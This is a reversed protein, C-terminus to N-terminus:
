ENESLSEEVLTNYTENYENGYEGNTYDEDSNVFSDDNEETNDNDYGIGQDGNTVYCHIDDEDKEITIYEDKENLLEVDNSEHFVNELVDKDTSIVNYVPTYEAYKDYYSEDLAFENHIGNPLSAMSPIYDTNFSSPEMEQTEFNYQYPAPITTSIMYHNSDELAEEFDSLKYEICADGRGSDILTVRIDSPDKPNVTVGAVILAHNAGQVGNLADFADQVKNKFEGFMRNVLAPQKKIWLENADVSVIVRHGERLEAIIDYITANETRKTPIGCADLINGVCQRPTGGSVPDPNYWGNQMAYQILEEQPIAIGYDRLIIEQSRIACSPQPGQDINPDYTDKNSNSKYGFTKSTKNAMVNLNLSNTCLNDGVNQPNCTIEETLSDNSYLCEENIEGGLYPSINQESLVLPLSLGLLENDDKYIDWFYNENEPEIITMESVDEIMESLRNDSEVTKSLSEMEYSDLKGEMYAGLMEESVPLEEISDFKKILEDLSKM